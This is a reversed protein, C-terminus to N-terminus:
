EGHSKNKKKQNKERENKRIRYETHPTNGAVICHSENERDLSKKKRHMKKQLLRIRPM